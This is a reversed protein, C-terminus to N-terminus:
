SFIVFLRIEGLDCYLGSFTIGLTEMCGLIMEQGEEVTEM